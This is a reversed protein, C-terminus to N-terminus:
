RLYRQFYSLILTNQAEGFSYMLQLYIFILKACSTCLLATGHRENPFAFSLLAPLDSTWIRGMPSKCKRQEVSKLFKKVDKRTTFICESTFKAGGPLVCWLNTLNNSYFVGM